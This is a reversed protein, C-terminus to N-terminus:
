PNSVSFEMLLVAKCEALDFFLHYEVWKGKPLPWSSKDVTSAQRFVCNKQSLNVGNCEVWSRSWKTMEWQIQYVM